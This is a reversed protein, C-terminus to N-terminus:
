LFPMLSIAEKGISNNTLPLSSSCTYFICLQQSVLICLDFFTCFPSLTFLKVQLLSFIRGLFTIQSKFILLLSSFCIARLVDHLCRPFKLFRWCNSLTCPLAHYTDFRSTSLFCPLCTLLETQSPIVDCDYLYPEQM